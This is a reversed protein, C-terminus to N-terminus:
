AERVIPLHVYRQFIERTGSGHKVLLEEVIVKAAKHVEEKNADLAQHTDSIFGKHLEVIEQLLGMAITSHALATPKDNLLYADRFESLCAEIKGLHHSTVSDAFRMMDSADAESLPAGDEDCIQMKGDHDVVSSSAAVHFYTPETEM